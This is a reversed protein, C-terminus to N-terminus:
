FSILSVSFDNASKSSSNDLFYKTTYIIKHKNKVVGLVLIKSEDDIKFIPFSDNSPKLEIIKKNFIEKNQLYFPELEVDNVVSELANIDLTYPNDEYKKIVDITGDTSGGDVIIYELNPYNQNLQNIM